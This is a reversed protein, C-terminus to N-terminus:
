LAEANESEADKGNRKKENCGAAGPRPDGRAYSDSRRGNTRVSVIFRRRVVAGWVAVITWLPKCAANEDACSGPIVPRSVEIAVDIVGKIISLAIASRRRSATFSGGGISNSKAPRRHMIGASM